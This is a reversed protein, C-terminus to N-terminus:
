GGAMEAKLREVYALREGQAAVIADSPQFVEKSGDWETIPTALKQRQRDLSNGPSHHILVTEDPLARGRALSELVIRYFSDETGM